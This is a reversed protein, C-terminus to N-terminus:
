VMLCACLVGKLAVVVVMARVVAGLFLCLNPHRLRSLMGMAACFLDAQGWMTHM